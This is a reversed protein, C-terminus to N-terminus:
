DVRELRAVQTNEYQLERGGSFTTGTIKHTFVGLIGDDSSFRVWGTQLSGGSSTRLENPDGLLRGFVNSIAGLPGKTFCDFPLDASFARERNNRIELQVVTQMPETSMLALENSVIGREQFFQDLLLDDPFFDYEIGDFDAFTDLNVDTLQRGCGDEDPGEGGDPLGRFPFPTYSNLFDLDMDVIIASGILYDFDVPDGSSQDRAEVWLWGTNMEPNHQDAFVTLTDGPTLSELINFERCNEGDIYTYLVDIAGVRLNRDDPCHITSRNTNTVTILTGRHPRSDFCPFILISAPEAHRPQALAAPSGLSAGVIAVSGALGFGKFAKM